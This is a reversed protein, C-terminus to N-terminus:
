FQTNYVNDHVNLDFNIMSNKFNKTSTKSVNKKRLPIYKYNLYKICHIKKIILLLDKWFEREDISLNNWSYSAIKSTDRVSSKIKARLLGKLIDKRYLV